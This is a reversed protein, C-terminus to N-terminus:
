QYRLLIQLSDNALREPSYEETRYRFYSMENTLQVTDGLRVFLAKKVLINWRWDIMNITAFQEVIEGSLFRYATTDVNANIVLGHLSDADILFVKTCSDAILVPDYTIPEEEWCQRHKLFVIWKGDSLRRYLLSDGKLKEMSTFRHDSFEDPVEVPKPPHFLFLILGTFCLAVGFTICFLRITRTVKISGDNSTYWSYGFLLFSLIAPLWFKLPHIFDTSDYIFKSFIYLIIFSAFAGMYVGVAYRSQLLSLISGALSLTLCVLAAIQFDQPTPNFPTIRSDLFLDLDTFESVFVYGFVLLAAINLLRSFYRKWHAMKERSFILM